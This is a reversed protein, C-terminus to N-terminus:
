LHGTKQSARGGEEAIFRRTDPRITGMPTTIPGTRSPTAPYWGRCTTKERAFFPTFFSVGTKTFLGLRGRGGKGEGEGLYGPCNEGLGRGGGHVCGLPM